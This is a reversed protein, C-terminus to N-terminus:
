CGADTGPSGEPGRRCPGRGAPRAGACTDSSRLVGCRSNGARRDASARDDAAAPHDAARDDTNDYPSDTDHHGCPDIDDNPGRERDVLTGAPRTQPRRRGERRGAGRGRDPGRGAPAVPALPVKLVAVACSPPGDVLRELSTELRVALTTDPVPEVKIRRLAEYVKEGNRGGFARCLRKFRVRQTESSLFAIRFTPWSEADLADKALRELEASGTDSVFVWREGRQLKPWWTSLVRDNGALSQGEVGARLV